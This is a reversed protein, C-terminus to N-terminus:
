RRICPPDVARALPLSCKEGTQELHTSGDPNSVCQFTIFNSASAAGGYSSENPVTINTGAGVGEIATRYHSNSCNGNGWSLPLLVANLYCTSSVPRVVCTGDPGPMYNNPCACVGNQLTQGGTCDASCLPSLPGNNPGRCQWHTTDGPVDVKTGVTCFVNIPGCEGAVSPICSGDSQLQFGAGVPCTCVSATSASTRQVPSCAISYQQESAGEIYYCGNGNSYTTDGVTCATGQLYQWPTGNSRNYLTGGTCGPGTGVRTFLWVGSSDSTAPVSVRVENAPCSSPACTLSVSGQLAPNSGSVGPVRKVATYFLGNDADNNNVITVGSFPVNVQQGSGDLYYYTYTADPQRNLRQTDPPLYSGGEGDTINQTAHITLPIDNSSIGIANVFFEHPNGDKLSAPIPITFGHNKNGNCWTGVSSSGSDNYLNGAVAQSVYTGGSGASGNVYLHVSLANNFDASDCAWGKIGGDCTSLCTSLCAADGNCTSCSSESGVWGTPYVTGGGGGGGCGSERLGVSCQIGQFFNGISSFFGAHTVLPFSVSAVVFFIPLLALFKNRM